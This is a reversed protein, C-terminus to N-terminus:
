SRATLSPKHASERKKAESGKSAELSEPRRRKTAPLKKAPLDRLAVIGLVRMNGDVVPLYDLHHECMTERAQDLSQSEFCYYAKKVMIEGFLHRKQIM